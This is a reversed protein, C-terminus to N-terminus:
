PKNGTLDTYTGEDQVTGYGALTFNNYTAINDTAGIMVHLGYTTSNKAINTSIVNNNGAINMGEVNNNSVCRSVISNNGNIVIGNYENDNVINGSFIISDGNLVAGDGANMSISSDNIIINSSGANIYLGSSANSKLACKSFNGDSSSGNIYIGSGGNNSCEADIVLMGVNNGIFAMGHSNSNLSELTKCSVSFSNSVTMGVGTSGESVMQNAEGNGSNEIYINPVCDYVSVAGLSFRRCGNVYLGTVSSNAIQINDISMGSFMTLAMYSSGTVPVGKYTDTLTLNNNDTITSIKMYISGLSIYDGPLLSNFNTGVGTVATSNTTLSITGATQISSPLSNCRVGFAQGNFNLLVGNRTEGTMSGGDPIIVNAVENYTGRRVYISKMGATFAASPLLYDGMKSDTSVIADYLKTAM